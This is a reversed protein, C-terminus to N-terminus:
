SAPSVTDLPPAVMVPFELIVPVTLVPASVTDLPPAVMVPFELIVPVTLM